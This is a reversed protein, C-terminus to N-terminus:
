GGGERVAERTHSAIYDSKMNHMHVWEGPEAPETMSGIPAGYKLVKDGPTLAHRAVKHGVGIAQPAALERGDITLRDGAAIPAISVLVNDDAHLLILKGIM